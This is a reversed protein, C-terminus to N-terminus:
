WTELVRPIQTLSTVKPFNKPLRLIPAPQWPLSLPDSSEVEGELKPYPLLWCNLEIQGSLYDVHNRIFSRYFGLLVLKPSDIKHM